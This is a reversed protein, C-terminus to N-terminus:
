VIFKEAKAKELAEYILDLHDALSLKKNLVTALTQEMMALINEDILKLQGQKYTDILARAARLELEISAQTKQSTEVLFDSLREELNGFLKNIREQTAKESVGRASQAEQGLNNIFAAFQTQSNNIAQQAQRVIEALEEGYREEMRQTNFRSSAVVKIGELEAQGLMDQSRTISQHLTEWGKEKLDNLLKDGTKQLKQRLIYERLYAFLALIIIIVLILNIIEMPLNM